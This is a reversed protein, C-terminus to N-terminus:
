YETTIYGTIGNSVTENETINRILESTNLILCIEGDTLTTFGSINRIKIIPVVLKKRFVEADSILKDAILATEKGKDELIIVTYYEQTKSKNNENDGNSLINSLMYLPLTKSNNIICKKGNRICIESSKVNRVLKINNVPIAYKQNGAVIIFVKITSMSLPLKVTIKCGKNIESEVSIDGNLNTIKTKVVDLGVGRGSIENVATETSFGPLFLLKIIQENNLNEAEERYLLGKSIATEKVKEPDIGYGDDEVTIIVTNESQKATLKVTGVPEKGAKIREEPLEIGHSVSNRLIHILPIKIEEIIKKDVTTDSGTIIFDVKKDNDKAIDRMMRPFSHFITALPLVRISKAITDIELANQHLKNDDTSMTNYLFNLDNNIDGAVDSNDIFFGQIKKYFMIFSEDSFQNFFGRKELYKLYNLVKKSEGSWKIVKENIKNLEAIHEGTKIGNILLEGTQAVLNDLKSTDVRLTKIEQLDFANVKQTLGADAINPEKVTTVTINGQNKNDLINLMDEVLSLRQMLFDINGSNIDESKIYMRKALYICQLIVMYCDKDPTINRVAYLDLVKTTNKLVKKFEEDESMKRLESLFERVYNIYDVEFKIKELNNIIEDIKIINNDKVTNEEAKENAKLLEKDNKRKTEKEKNQHPFIDYVSIRLEPIRNKLIELDPNKSLVTEILSKIKTKVDSYITKEFLENLQELNEYVVSIIDDKDENDDKGLVFILELIIADIDINKSIIFEKSKKEDWLEEKEPAKIKTEQKLPLPQNQESRTEKTTFVSNLQELFDNIKPDIYDSKQEVSKSILELLFDCAEYIIQIVDPNVKAEPTNWYSIIDEIKHAIDQIGNFGLMRAAGKLSHSLQLLRKLPTKDDPNKELALFNDNIEQIIEESEAKFINLIEDFEGPNYQM